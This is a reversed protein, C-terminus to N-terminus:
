SWAAMDCVRHHSFATGDTTMSTIFSADEVSAGLWCIAALLRASDSYGALHHLGACSVSGESSLM